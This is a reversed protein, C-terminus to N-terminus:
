DSLQSVKHSVSGLMLGKVGDLGRSGIVIVDIAHDKAYRLIQDAPDGEKIITNIEVSGKAAQHLTEAADDLLKNTSSKMEQMAAEPLSRSVYPYADASKNQIVIIMTIHVKRQNIVALISQLIKENPGTADLPALIKNFM